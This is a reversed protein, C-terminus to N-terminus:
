RSVGSAASGARAATSPTPSRSRGRSCSCRGASTTSTSTRVVPYLPDDVIPIGLGDLHVRLQHTRGTRPDPPLDRRDVESEVRRADGRQGARGAGGGGAM